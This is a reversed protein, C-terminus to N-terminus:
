TPVDVPTRNQEYWASGDWAFEIARNFGNAPNTWTGLRLGGAGATWTIAGMAGGSANFTLRYRSLKQATGESVLFGTPAATNSAIM